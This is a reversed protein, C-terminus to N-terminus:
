IYIKQSIHLSRELRNRIILMNLYHHCKDLDTMEFKLNLSDKLIQIAKIYSKFILIDDVYIIIIISNDDSLRLSTRIFINYNANIRSYSM